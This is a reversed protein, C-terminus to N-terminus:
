CKNGNPLEQGCCECKVPQDLIRAAEDLHSMQTSESIYPSTMNYLNSHVAIRDAPSLKLIRKRIAILQSKM